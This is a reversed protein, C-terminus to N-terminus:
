FIRAEHGLRSQDALHGYRSHLRREAKQGDGPLPRFLRQSRQARGGDHRAPLRCLMAPRNRLSLGADNRARWRDSLGFEAIAPSKISVFGRREEMELAWNPSM